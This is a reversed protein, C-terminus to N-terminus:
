VEFPQGNLRHKKTLPVAHTLADETFCMRHAARVLGAIVEVSETSDVSFDIEMGDCRGQKDGRLVSGREHFHATVKVRENQIQIKRKIAM